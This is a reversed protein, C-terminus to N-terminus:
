WQITTYHIHDCYHLSAYALYYWNIDTLILVFCVRFGTIVKKQILKMSLFGQKFNGFDAIYITPNFIVGGGRQCKELFWGIQYCWGGRLPEFYTKNKRIQYEGNGMKGAIHLLLLASTALQEFKGGFAALIFDWKWWFQSLAFKVWFAFTKSRSFTLANSSGACVSLIAFGRKDWSIYSIPINHKIYINSM